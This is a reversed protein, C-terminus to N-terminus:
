GAPNLELVVTTVQISIEEQLRLEGELEGKSFAVVIRDQLSEVSEIDYDRLPLNDQFYAFVSEAPAPIRMTLETYVPDIGRNILGKGAVAEAPIPFDDPVTSPVEGDLFELEPGDDRTGDGGCAALVLLAAAFVAIVRGSRFSSSTVM